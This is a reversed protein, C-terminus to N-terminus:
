KGGQCELCLGSADAPARRCPRFYPLARGACEGPEPPCPPYGPPAELRLSFPDPRRGSTKAAALTEFGIMDSAPVGKLKPAVPSYFYTPDSKLGILKGPKAAEANPTPAQAQSAAEAKQAREPQCRRCASKGAREAADPSAYKVHNSASIRGAEPCTLLHYFSSNMEALVVGAAAPAPTPTPTPPAKTGDSWMGLKDKRAKDLAATFDRDYLKSRAKSSDYDAVGRAVLEVNVAKRDAGVFLYVCPAGSEDVGLEDAYALSVNKKGALEELAAKAEPRAKVNALRVVVPLGNFAIRVKDPAVVEEVKHSGVIDTAHGSTALVLVLAASAAALFMTRM